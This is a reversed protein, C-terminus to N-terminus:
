KMEKLIRAEELLRKARHLLAVCQYRETFRGVFFAFLMGVIGILTMAIIVPQVDCTQCDM